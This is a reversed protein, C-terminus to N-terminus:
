NADDAPEIDLYSVQTAKLTNQLIKAKREARDIVARIRPIDGVDLAVFFDKHVQDQEFHIRLMHVIAFAEIKTGDDDFVPRADTLIKASKFLNEHDTLVAMAKTNLELVHDSSFIRDLRASLTKSDEPLCVFDDCAAQLAAAAVEDAFETVSMESDQKLYELTIVENVLAGIVSKPVREASRAIHRTLTAISFSPTASTLGSVFADFDEAKMEILDRLPAYASEPIVFQAEKKEVPTPTQNLEWRVQWRAAPM